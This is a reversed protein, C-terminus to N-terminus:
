SQVNACPYAGTVNESPERPSRWMKGSVVAYGAWLFVLTYAPQCYPLVFPFTNMGAHFLATAQISRRSRNYFWVLLINIPIAMAVRILFWMALNFRVPRYYDLPGHWLSWPLWVLVSALLPSFRLQLRDLLFGRWGPEEEVGVFLINYLFFATARAAIVGPTGSHQPWVLPLRFAYAIAGPVLLFIPWCILSSLSWPTPRHVLRGVLSRVGCDRSLVSSLVWAPFVSPILTLPNLYLTIRDAARWQYHASLVLWCLVTLLMFWVWRPSRHTASAEVSHNRSLIMAAIAPGAVGVNLYEEGINTKIVLLWSTWAFIYALALYRLADRTVRSRADKPNEAIASEVVPNTM